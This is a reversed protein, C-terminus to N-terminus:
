IRIRGRILQTRACLKIVKQAETQAMQSFPANVTGVEHLYIITFLYILVTLLTLQFSRM